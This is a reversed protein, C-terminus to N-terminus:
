LRIQEEYTFSIPKFAIRHVGKYEYSIRQFNERYKAITMDTDGSYVDIIRWPPAPILPSKSQTTENYIKQILSVSQSYLPNRKHEEIAFALACNLSCFVGDTEYYETPAVITTTHSYNDSANKPISELVSFTEKSIESNYSRSIKRPKYEIPCGIPQHTFPHHDWFCRRVTNIDATVVSCKHVKRLEDHFLITKEVPQHDDAINTTNSIIPPIGYKTHLEFFGTSLSLSFPFKKQSKRRSM